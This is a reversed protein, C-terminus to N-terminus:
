RSLREFVHGKQFYAALGRVSEGGRLDADRSPLVLCHDVRQTNEKDPSDILGSTGARGLPQIDVFPFSTTHPPPSESCVFPLVAHETRWM